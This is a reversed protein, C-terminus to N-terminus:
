WNFLFQSFDYGDRFFVHLIAIPIQEDSHGLGWHNPSPLLAMELLDALSTNPEV